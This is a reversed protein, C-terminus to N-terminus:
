LPRSFFYEITGCPDNLARTHPGRTYGRRAYFRHADAFRTDSWLTVRACGRARGEAEILDMLRSALGLRRHSARVYLRKVEIATPDAASPILGGSAVLAGDDEAVWLVGNRAAFHARAVPLDADEGDLCLFCNPYEGYCSAILETLGLADRDTVPRLPLMPRTFM